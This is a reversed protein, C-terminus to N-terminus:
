RDDDKDKDICCKKFKLGSGCPCPKNRLRGPKSPSVKCKSPVSVLVERQEQIAKELELARDKGVFAEMERQKNILRNVELDHENM